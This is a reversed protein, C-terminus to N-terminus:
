DTPLWGRAAIADFFHRAVEERGRATLHCRDLNYEGQGTPLLNALDVFEMRHEKFFARAADNYADPREAPDDPDPFFKFTAFLSEAGVSDALSRITALNELTTEITRRGDRGGPWPQTPNPHQTQRMMSQFVFIRDLQCALASLVASAAHWTDPLAYRFGHFAVLGDFDKFVHAQDPRYGPLRIARVDNEGHYTLVLDPHLHIGLTALAISSYLSTAARTGFSYVVVNRNPLAAALRRELIAPWTDANTPAFEGFTTSGGLCVVVFDRPGRQWSFEHTRFGFANFDTTVVVDLSPDPQAATTASPAGVYPLFPHADLRRPPEHPRHMCPARGYPLLADAIRLSIDLVVYGACLGLLIM